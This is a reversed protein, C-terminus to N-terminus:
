IYALVAWVLLGIAGAGGAIYITLEGLGQLRRLEDVHGCHACQKALRPTLQWCKRCHVRRM